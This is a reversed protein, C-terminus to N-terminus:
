RAAITTLTRGDILAVVLRNDEFKVDNVEPDAEPVLTSM